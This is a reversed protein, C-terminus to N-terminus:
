NNQFIEREPLSNTAEMEVEEENDTTSSTICMLPYILTFIFTFFKPNAVSTIISLIFTLLVYPYLKKHNYKKIFLRFIQTMYLIISFLGLLGFTALNDFVFSHGGSETPDWTGTIWNNRFSNLSQSYLELRGGSTRNLTDSIEYGNLVYGIYILRQNYATDEVNDAVEFAINGILVRLIIALFVFITALSYLKKSSLKGIFLVITLPIFYLLAMTFHSLLIVFFIYLLIILSAIPNLLKYKFLYIFYPVLLVFQYVFSFEGVNYKRYELYLDTNPLATLEKMINPRFFTAISSTLGTIMFMFIIYSLVIKQKHKNGSEIYIIAITQVVILQLLGYISRLFSISNENYLILFCNLISPFFVFIIGNYKQMKKITGLQSFAMLGCLIFLSYIFIPPVIAGVIPLFFYSLYLLYVIDTFQLTQHESTM